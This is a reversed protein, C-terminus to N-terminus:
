TKCSQTFKNFHESSWRPLVQNQVLRGQNRSTEIEINKVECFYVKRRRVLGLSIGLHTYIHIGGM